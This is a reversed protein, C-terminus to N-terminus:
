FLSRVRFANMPRFHGLFDSLLGIGKTPPRSHELCQSLATRGPGVGAPRVNWHFVCSVLLCALEDCIATFEVFSIFLIILCVTASGAYQPCSGGIIAERLCHSEPSVRLHFLALEAFFESPFQCLYEIHASGPTCPCSFPPHPAPPELHSGIQFSRKKETEKEWQLLYSSMNRLM